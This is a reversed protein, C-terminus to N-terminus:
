QIKGCYPFKNKLNRGTSQEYKCYAFGNLEFIIDKHLFQHYIFLSKVVFGDLKGTALFYCVITNTLSKVYSTYM